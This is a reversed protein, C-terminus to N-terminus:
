LILEFECMWYDVCRRALRSSAASAYCSIPAYLCRLPFWMRPLCHPSLPYKLFSHVLTAVCHILVHLPPAGVLNNSFAATSTPRLCKIFVVHPPSTHAPGAVRSVPFPFAHAATPHAALTCRTTSKEMLNSWKVHSAHSSHQIHAALSPSNNRNQFSFSFLFHMSM